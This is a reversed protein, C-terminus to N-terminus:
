DPDSDAPPEDTRVPEADGPHTTFYRARRKIAQEITEGPRVPILNGAPMRHYTIQEDDM